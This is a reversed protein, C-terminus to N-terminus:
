IQIVACFLFQPPMQIQSSCRIKEQLILKHLWSYAYFFYKFSMIFIDEKKKVKWGSDRRKRECIGNNDCDM